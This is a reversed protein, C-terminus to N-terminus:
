ENFGYDLDLGYLRSLQCESLVGILELGGSEKQQLLNLNSLRGFITRKKM